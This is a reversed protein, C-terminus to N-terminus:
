DCERGVPRAPAHHGDHQEFAPALQEALWDIASQRADEEAAARRRVIEALPGFLFHAVILGYLTTAVAMGIANGLTDARIGAGHLTALSVLTGALGMVPGLEAAQVLTDSAARSRRERMARYSEHREMLAGMSRRRVLTETLDEFERDSLHDFVARLPGDTRIADIPAALEARMEMPTRARTALRALSRLTIAFNRCGVRLFTASLTGGLVLAASRADWLFSFDM